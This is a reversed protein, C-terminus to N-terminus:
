YGTEMSPPGAPPIAGISGSPTEPILVYQISYGGVGILDGDSLVVPTHPPIRAGNVYTGNTSGFDIITSSLNEWILAAHNRSVAETPLFISNDATRGIGNRGPNLSVTKRAQNPGDIHIIARFRTVNM